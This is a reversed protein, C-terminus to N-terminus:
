IPSQYWDGGLRGKEYVSPRNIRMREKQVLDFPQDLFDLRTLCAIGLGPALFVRRFPQGGDELQDGLGYRCIRTGGGEPLAACEAIVALM